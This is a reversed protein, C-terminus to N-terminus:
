PRASRSRRAEDLRARLWAVFADAPEIAVRLPVAAWPLDGHAHADLRVADKETTVIAEAGAAHAARVVDQLDAASFRHHDRFARTGVVNAGGARLMDFFREPRAIGAVAFLRAQAAVPSGDDLRHPGSIHRTVGFAHPVGLSGAIRMAAEVSGPALLAHAARANALPERLRGAPLVRDALDHEDVLVLDVDRALQVHQFGDDLLHVTAGHHQEAVLGARYRDPCVLVPVGTLARALLLPEDGAHAVDALVHAGDSVVTVGASSQERAYGRSLIAPREGCARLLRAVEAVVPTKGTGGVRVNGISVVPQALRHARGTDRAYWRRRWTAAAGYVASLAQVIM